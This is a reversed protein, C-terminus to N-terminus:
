SMLKGLAEFNLKPDFCAEIPIELGQLVISNLHGNGSKLALEYRNKKLTYQEVIKNDPDVIWYEKVAQSEYDTFKIGRDIQQTSKSLVEVILDPVPFLTQDSKFYKSKKKGFFVIDPEYDNRDFTCMIKEYGVFGLDHKLVYNNVLNFIFSSADNHRKMVPSHVVIKGNIFEVKNSEDIDNYFQLRSKKEEELKNKVKEILRPADPLELIQDFLADNFM